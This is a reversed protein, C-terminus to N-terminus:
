TEGMNGGESDRGMSKAKCFLFDSLCFELCTMVQFAYHFVRFVYHFVQFAYDFVRFVYDFVCELNKRM